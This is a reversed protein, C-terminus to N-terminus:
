SPIYRDLAESLPGWVEDASGGDVAARLCKEVHNHLVVRAVSDVAARVAALQNLVEACPRDDTVMRSIGGVHGKIRNLRHVVKQREESLDLETECESM